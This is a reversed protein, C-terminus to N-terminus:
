RALMTFKEMTWAGSFKRWTRTMLSSWQHRRQMNGVCEWFFNTKPDWRIRKEAAVEDFMAVVHLRGM